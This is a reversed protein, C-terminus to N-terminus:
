SFIKVLKLAYFYESDQSSDISILKLIKFQIILTRYSFFSSLNSEQHSWTTGGTLDERSRNLVKPATTGRGPVDHAQDETNDM